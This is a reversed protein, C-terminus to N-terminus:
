RLVLPMLGAATLKANIGSLGITKLSSWRTMAATGVSRAATIGQLQMATPTVDAAQLANM